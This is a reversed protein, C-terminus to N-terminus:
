LSNEMTPWAKRAHGCPLIAVSRVLDTHGPMSWLWDPSGQALVSRSPIPTGAALLIVSVFLFGVPLFRVLFQRM